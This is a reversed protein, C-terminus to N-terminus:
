SAILEARNLSFGSAIWRNELEKLRAGLAPGQFQDILDASRVPFKAMAGALLNARDDLVLSQEFVAGRLLLIDMGVEAGHRYGLEGPSQMNGIGDQYIHLLKAQSKSLRLATQVDQGGLASLRRIPNPAITDELHILPALSRDDAGEIVHALVGTQRMTAIALSPDPASLLKLVETGVREKSLTELGASSSSIAALADADMGGSQDGYWAHFRFYRLIRLYDERIRENANDIFRFRRVKLDALGGLPDVVVGDATAYLANMTFDRRRADDEVNDAFAVVARRGDTEVDKRFTTIEHPIKDAIVTVTGHDIGTPVANLGAARALEMVRMPRADTSIDIDSVPVGLLANRVCGGVLLAQHGADMLMRCVTQTASNNLWDGSVKM